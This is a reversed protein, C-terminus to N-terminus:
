SGIECQILLVSIAREGKEFYKLIFSLEPFKAKNFSDCLSKRYIVTPISEKNKRTNENISSKCYISL